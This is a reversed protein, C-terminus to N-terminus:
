PIRDRPEGKSGCRGQVQAQALNHPAVPLLHRTKLGWPLQTALAWRGRISSELEWFCSGTGQQFNMAM